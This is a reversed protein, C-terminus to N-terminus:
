LGFLKIANQRVIKQYVTQSLQRTSLLYDLWFALPAIAKSTAIDTGFLLRDAFEQMFGLAYEPDRLLANAGSNASLDAYLNPYRRLLQQVRGEQTVRGASYVFNRAMPEQDPDCPTMQGWFIQSHGIITLGPFESLAWELGDLHNNDVMGYFPPMAAPAMHCLLPMHLEQCANLLRCVRPDDWIYTRKVSGVGIEGVGLAGQQQWHLLQQYPDQIDNPELNCFWGFHEPEQQCLEAAQQNSFTNPYAPDDPYPLIIAKEIDLVHDITLRDEPSVLRRGPDSPNGLHAHIDIKRPRVAQQATKARATYENADMM